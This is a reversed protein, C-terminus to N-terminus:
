KKEDIKIDDPGNVAIQGQGRYISVEGTVIIKKNKFHTSPDEIGAEKFKKMPTAAIFVTFNGDKKFDDESNLFALGRQLATSKVEMAVTVTEGKKTVAEAPTIPEAANVTTLGAFWVFASLMLYRM